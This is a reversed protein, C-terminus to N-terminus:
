KVGGAQYVKLKDWTQRGVVGDATLSHDRQFAEVASKTGSGIKGDVPGSYYGANKLAEQVSKAPLEFGSPTRYVPGLGAGSYSVSSSAKGGQSSQVSGRVDQLDQDLRVIEDTIVGIQGQMANLQRQTKGSACGTMTTMVFFGLMSLFGFQFVQKM